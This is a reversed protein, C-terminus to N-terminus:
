DLNETRKGNVKTFYIQILQDTLRNVKCSENCMCKVLIQEILWKPIIKLICKIKPIWFHKIKSHIKINGPINNRHAYQRLEEM